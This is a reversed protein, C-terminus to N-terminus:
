STRTSPGCRRTASGSSRWRGRSSTRSCSTPTPSSGSSCRSARPRACTSASAASTAAAPSSAPSLGGGYGVRAADPFARNEIKIVDAGQDALLVGSRTASSSSGSTSSACGALPRRLAAARRAAGPRARRSLALRDNHEGPEPARHRFGPTRRRTRPLREAAATCAPHSRPTPSRGRGPLAPQGPGRLRGAGAGGSAAAQGERRSRRRDERRVARRVARATRGRCPAARSRTSASTRSPRPSAWGPACRGGSARALVVLRVHGDACPFIPYLGAGPARAVLPVGSARSVSAAGYAPDMIQM